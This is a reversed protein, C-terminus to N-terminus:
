AAEGQESQESAKENAELTLKQLNQYDHFQQAIRERAEGVKELAVGMKDYFKLLETLRFKQKDSFSAEVNTRTKRQLNIFALAWEEMAVTSVFDKTISPESELVPYFPPRLQKLTSDDPAAGYVEKEFSPDTTRLYKILDTDRQYQELSLSSRLPMMELVMESYKKIKDEPISRQPGGKKLVAAWEGPMLFRATKLAISQPLSKLIHLVDQSDIKKLFTPLENDLRWCLVLLKDWSSNKASRDVRVLKNMLEFSFQDIEGADAMGSLWAASYSLSFVQNRLAIPFESLLGGTSRPNQTMYQEFLVMDQLLPFHGSSEINKILGLIVETMRITDNLQVRGSQLGAGSSAAASSLAGPAPMMAPMGMSGSDGTTVKINQIAKSLRGTSFYSAIFYVVGLMFLLTFGIGLVWPTSQSREKNPWTKLVVEVLDRGEVYPIRSTIASKVENQQETSITDPLTVKVSIRVVRNLLEFDTKNPDDWEDRIEDMTEYYPLTEKGSSKTERRLPEIRVSLHFPQGALLDRVASQADAQLMREIEAVRPLKKNDEAMTKSGIILGLVLLLIVQTFYKM